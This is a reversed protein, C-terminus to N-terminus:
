RVYDDHWYGVFLLIFQSLVLGEVVVLFDLDVFSIAVVFLFIVVVVKEFVDVLFFIHGGLVFGEILGIYLLGLFLIHGLTKTRFSFDPKLDVEALLRSSYPSHFSDSTELDIASTSQLFM